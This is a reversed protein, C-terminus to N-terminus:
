KGERCKGGGGIGVAIEVVKWERGGRRVREVGDSVKAGTEGVRM